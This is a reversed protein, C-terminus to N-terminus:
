PVPLSEADVVTEPAPPAVTVEAGFHSFTLVGTGGSAGKEEFQIPLPDGEAAVWLTGGTTPFVLGVAPVGNVDQVDAIEVSGQAGLVRDAFSKGDAFIAFTSTSDRPLLLWKGAMTAAADPGVNTAMFETDGTVYIRGDLAVLTVPSGSDVTGTAGVGVKFTIDIAGGGVTSGAVHYSGQAELAALVAALAEEPSKQDVGNEAPASQDDSAIQALPATTDDNGCGALALVCVSLAAAAMRPRRILPPM